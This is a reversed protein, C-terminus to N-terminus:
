ETKWKILLNDGNNRMTQGAILFLNKSIQQINYVEDNLESFEIKSVQCKETEIYYKILVIDRTDTSPKRIFGIGIFRGDNTFIGNELKIDEATQFITKAIVEGKEDLRMFLLAGLSDSKELTHGAIFIQRNKLETVVSPFEGKSTAIIKKWIFEGDTTVRYLLIDSNQPYNENTIGSILLDSNEMEMTNYFKDLKEEGFTKKWIVRGSDNIKFLLGDLNGADWSSTLGAVIYNKDKTQRIDYAREEKPGDLLLTWLTDGSQDAKVIMADLQREGEKRIFGSFIYNGDHAKTGSYLFRFHRDPLVKTWLVNMDSTIKNFTIQPQRNSYTVGTLLFSNNDPILFVGQEVSDTGWTKIEYNEKKETHVTLTNQCIGSSVGSLYWMLTILLIPISLIGNM